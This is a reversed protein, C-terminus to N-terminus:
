LSFSGQRFIEGHMNESMCPFSSKKKQCLMDFETAMIHESFMKDYRLM